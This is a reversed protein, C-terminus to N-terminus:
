RASRGRGRGYCLPRPRDATMERLIKEVALEQGQKPTFTGVFTAQEAIRQELVSDRADEVRCPVASQLKLSNIAVASPVATLTRIFKRREAHYAPM